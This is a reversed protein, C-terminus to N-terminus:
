CLGLRFGNEGQGGGGRMDTCLESGSIRGIEGRLGAGGEIIAGGGGRWNWESWTEVVKVVVGEVREEMAEDM